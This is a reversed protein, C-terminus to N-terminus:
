RLLGWAAWEIALLAAAAAYFWWSLDRRGSASPASTPAATARWEGGGDRGVDSEDASLLSALVLRDAGGDGALKHIGAREALVVPPDGSAHVGPASQLAAGASRVPVGTAVTIPAEAAPEALWRLTGLTLLVLPMADTSSPQVPLEAGLCARRRGAHEGVVLFPFAAHRSAATV